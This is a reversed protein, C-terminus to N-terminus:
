ELTTPQSHSNGMKNYRKMKEAMARYQNLLNVYQEYTIHTDEPCASGGVRTIPTHLLPPPTFKPTFNPPFHNKDLHQRTGTPNKPITNSQMCPLNWHPKRSLKVHSMHNIGM